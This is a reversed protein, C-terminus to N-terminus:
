LASAWVSSQSDRSPVQWLVVTVHYCPKNPNQSRPILNAVLVRELPLPASLGQGAQSEKEHLGKKQRSAKRFHTLSLVLTSDVDAGPCCHCSSLFQTASCSASSSVRRFELFHSLFARLGLTQPSGNVLAVLNCAFRKQLQTHKYLNNLVVEANFGRKVEVVVRM